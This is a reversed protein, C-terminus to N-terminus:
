GQRTFLDEVALNKFMMRDFVRDPVIRAIAWVPDMPNRTRPRAAAILENTRKVIDDTPKAAADLEDLRALFRPWIKEYITGTYTKGEAMKNSNATIKSKVFSPEITSVEIGYPMLERRLGQSLAELAHKSSSYAAMFPATMAGAVSGINIIRGPVFPHDDQAGLLPLFARTVNLLGFYNVEFVFRIEDMPQLWIPGNASIGANNILVDLGRNGIQQRVTEGALAIGEPDTVDFFLPVFNESLAVLHEADAARRVSGFVLHGKALLDTAIASGIGSSVGTVVIIKQTDNM